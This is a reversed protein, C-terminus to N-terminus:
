LLISFDKTLFSISTIKQFPFLFKGEKWLDDGIQIYTHRLIYPNGWMELKSVLM